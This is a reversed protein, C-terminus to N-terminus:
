NSDGSCNEVSRIRLSAHACVRLTIEAFISQSLMFSDPFCVADTFRGAANGSAKTQIRAGKLQIILYVM